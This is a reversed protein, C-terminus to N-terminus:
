ERFASELQERLARLEAFAAVSETDLANLTELARRYHTQGLETNGATTELMGLRELVFALDTQATYSSPDSAILEERIQLCENLLERAQEHEGTALHVDAVYKLAISLDRRAQRSDPAAGQINRAVALSASYSTLADAQRELQMQTTGLKNLLVSEDREQFVPTEATMGNRVLELSARYVSEAGALDGTAFLMNGQKSLAVSFDRQAVRSTPDVLYQSEFANRSEDFALIAALTDGRKQHYDGVKGWGFGLDRLVGPDDPRRLALDKTVQLAADYAAGAHDLKGLEIQADGVSEGAISLDRHAQLDDPGAVAVLREAIERALELHDIALKTSESGDPGGFLLFIRGLEQNAILTDRDVEPQERVSVGIEKLGNLATELISARVSHSAEIPALKQRVDFVLSHLTKLALRRQKVADTRAAQEADALRGREEALLVAKGTATEAVEVQQALLLSFVIATTAIVFLATVALAVLSRNRRAFRMFRQAFPEALVSVPEDALWRELDARLEDVNSYRERPDTKMAKLCVAELAGPVAPQLKRPAPFECNRANNLITTSDNGEYPAKGVLLFYLTAGLGFVDSSRDIQKLRGNAQEPCLFGPTGIASGEVTLDNEFFRSSLELEPVCPSNPSASDQVDKAWKALGWDIVVAEGHDGMVINSPKIDRHIVGRSHAFAIGQCASIFASLLRRFELAFFDPVTPTTQHFAIAKDRMTEDGLMRMAYWPAGDAAVGAEYLPVIAPHELAGTIEAERLFRAQGAPHHRLNEKIQKLAVLRNLRLDRAVAVSGLGGTALEREVQFRPSQHGTELRNDAEVSWGYLEVDGEDSCSSAGATEDGTMPNTLKGAAVSQSQQWLAQLLRLDAPDLSQQEVLIDTLDRSTDCSWIEVAAVLQRSDILDSEFAFAGLQWSAVPQSIM